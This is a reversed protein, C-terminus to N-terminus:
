AIKTTTKFMKASKKLYTSALVSIEFKKALTIAFNVVMNVNADNWQNSKGDYTKWLRGFIYFFGCFFLKYYRYIRSYTFM